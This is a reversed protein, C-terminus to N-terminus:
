QGAASYVMPNLFRMCNYALNGAFFDWIGLGVAKNNRLKKGRRASIVLQALSQTPTWGCTKQPCQQSCLNESYQLKINTAELQEGLMTLVVM